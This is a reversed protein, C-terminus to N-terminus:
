RKANLEHSFNTGTRERERERKGTGSHGVMALPRQQTLALELFFAQKVTEATPVIISEGSAKASMAGTTLHGPGVQKLICYFRSIILRSKVINKSKKKAFTEFLTVQDVWKVWSGPKDVDLTYDFISSHDPILNTRGLRFSAPKTHGKMLGDVLNRFFADFQPKANSTMTCCLGWMISFLFAMQIHVSDVEQMMVVEKEGEGGGGLGGGGEGGKAGGGGGGGGEGGGDGGAGGAGGGFAGGQMGILTAFLSMQCTVLHLESYPLFTESASVQDLCPQILWNFMDLVCGVKESDYVDRPMSAMFSDRLPLWGM